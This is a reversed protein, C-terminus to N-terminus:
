GWSHFSTESGKPNQMLKAIANGVGNIPRIINAPVILPKVRPDSGTVDAFHVIRRGLSQAIEGM